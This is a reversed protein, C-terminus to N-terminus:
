AAETVPPSPVSPPTEGPMVVVTDYRYSVVLRTGESSWQQDPCAGNTGIQSAVVWVVTEGGVVMSLHKSLLRVSERRLTLSKKPRFM